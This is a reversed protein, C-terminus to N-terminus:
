QIAENTASYTSDNEVFRVSVIVYFVHIVHSRLHAVGGRGGERRKLM